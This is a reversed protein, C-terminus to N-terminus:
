EYSSFDYNEVTAGYTCPLINPVDENTIHYHYLGDPFDDTVGLHGSCDDLDSPTSGDSDEYGYIPFGDRAYGVIENSTQETNTCTVATIGEQDLLNNVVEPVLHWHYPGDPQPHGGCADLSPLAVEGNVIASPPAEAYPFGDLSIGWYDLGGTTTATTTKVPYAPIYYTLTLDNLPALLCSANLDSEETEELGEVDTDSDVTGGPASYITVVNISGDDEIIDYGDTALDAWLDDDLSRLGPNTTGDWVGLGGVEGEYDPCGTEWAEPENYYSVKYCQTVTGDSLVCDVLEFDSVRSYESFLSTDLVLTETETTTDDDSSDDSCSSALIFSMTLIPLYYKFPTM